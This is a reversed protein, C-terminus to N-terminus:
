QMCEAHFLSLFGFINVGNGYHQFEAVPLVEKM